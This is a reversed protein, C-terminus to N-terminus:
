KRAPEQSKAHKKRSEGKPLIPLKITDYNSELQAPRKSPTLHLASAFADMRGDPWSQAYSNGIASPTQNIKSGRLPSSPQKQWSEGSRGEALPKQNTICVNITCVTLM